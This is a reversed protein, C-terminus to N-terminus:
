HTPLTKRKREGIKHLDKLKMDNYLGKHIKIHCPKCVPIQKRNLSSMLATFGTSKVGGKRLHKVHHMEVGDM